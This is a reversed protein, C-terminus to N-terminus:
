SSGGEPKRTRRPRQTETEAAAPRQPAAAAAEKQHEKIKYPGLIDVLDRSDEVLNNGAETTYKHGRFGKSKLSKQEDTPNSANRAALVKKDFTCDACECGTPGQARLKGRILQYTTM